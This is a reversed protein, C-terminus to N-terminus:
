TAEADAAASEIATALADLGERRELIATLREYDSPSFLPTLFPRLFAMAQGGVYNLPRLSELFLIAPAAMRRRAIAGALRELLAHDEEDLQGHPGTV